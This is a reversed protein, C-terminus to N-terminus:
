AKGNIWWDGELIKLEEPTLKNKISNILDVKTNNLYVITSIVDHFYRTEVFAHFELGAPNNERIDITDVYLSQRPDVEYEKTDKNYKVKSANWAIGAGYQGARGGILLWLNGKNDKLVMGERLDNM